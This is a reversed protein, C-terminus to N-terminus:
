NLRKFDDQLIGGSRRKGFPPSLNGGKSLPPHLPILHENEFPYIRVEETHYIKQVLKLCGGSFFKLLLILSDNLLQKERMSM